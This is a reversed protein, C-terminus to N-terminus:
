FINKILFYSFLVEKSGPGIIINEPTFKNSYYNSILQRLTYLGQVPLYDKEKSKKQLEEVMINPVPFPSQGFGFKFIKKGEKQLKLSTENIQLTPSPKLNLIKSNYKIKSNLKLKNTRM